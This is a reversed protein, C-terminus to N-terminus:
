YYGIQSNTEVPYQAGSPMLRPDPYQGEPSMSYQQPEISGGGGMGSMMLFPATSVGAGIVAQGAGSNAARGLLKGGKALLPLAMGAYKLGTAILPAAM